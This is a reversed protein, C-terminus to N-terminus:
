ETTVPSLNYVYSVFAKGNQKRTLKFEMVKQSGPMSTVTLNVKDNLIIVASSGDANVFPNALKWTGSTPLLAPATGDVQFTTPQGKDDTNLTIAFSDFDFNSTLDMTKQNTEDVQTISNLLWQGGVKEYQTIPAVYSGDDTDNCSLLGASCAMLALACLGSFLLKKATM